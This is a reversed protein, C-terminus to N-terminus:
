EPAGGPSALGGPHASFQSSTDCGHPEIRVVSQGSSPQVRPTYSSVLAPPDVRYLSLSEGANKLGGAGLSEDVRVMRAGPAPTADGNVGGQYGSPVVIVRQGGFVDFGPLRDGPPQEGSQLRTLVEPWALDALWLGHVVQLPADPSTLSMLEVFEEIPEPGLPDALAEVISLRPLRSDFSNGITVELSRVARQGDLSEAVLEVSVRDGPQHTDVALPMAVRVVGSGRAVAWARDVGLQLAVISEAEFQAFLCREATWVAAASLDLPEIEVADGVEFWSDRGPPVALRADQDRATATTLRVRTRSPLPAPLRWRLCTGIDTAPCWGPQTAKVTTGSAATLVLEDAAFTAQVHVSFGIEVFALNAPVGREGVRPWALRPAPGSSNPDATAFVRQWPAALEREDSLPAGSLDRAGAGVVVTHVTFAPLTTGPTFSWADDLADYEVFVGIDNVYEGRALRGFDASTFPDQWCTGRVCPGDACPSFPDCADGPEWPVFAVHGPGLTRADMPESFRVQIIPRVGIESRARDLNSELVVPADLDVNPTALCSAGSALGWGALGWGALWIAIRRMLRGVLAPARSRFPVVRSLNKRMDKVDVGARRRQVLRLLM